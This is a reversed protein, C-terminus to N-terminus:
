PQLTGQPQASPPASLFRHLEARHPAATPQMTAVRKLLMPRLAAHRAELHRCAARLLRSARMWPRVRGTQKHPKPAPALAHASLQNEHSVRLGHLLSHQLETIGARRRWVVRLLTTHGM